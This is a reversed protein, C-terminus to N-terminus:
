TVEQGVLGWSVMMLVGTDRRLGLCAPAEMCQTVWQHPRSHLNRMKQSKEGRRRHRSAKEEPHLAGGVQQLVEWEELNVEWPVQLDEWVEQIDEWKALTDEWAGWAEQHDVWTDQIGEWQAWPDEWAGTLDVWEGKIDVWAWAALHRVWTKQLCVWGARDQFGLSTRCGTVRM